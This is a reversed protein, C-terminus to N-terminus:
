SAVTELEAVATGGYLVDDTPEKRDKRCQRLREAENATLMLPDAGSAVLDVFARTPHREQGRERRPVREPYRYQLAKQDEYPDAKITPVIGRARLKQLVKFLAARQATIETIRSWADRQKAPARMAEEDNTIGEVLPALGAAEGILGTHEEGLHETILRDGLERLQLRAKTEVDRVAASLLFQARHPDRIAADIEMAAALTLEGAALRERVSKTAADKDETLARLQAGLDAQRELAAAVVPEVISADLGSETWATAIQKLDGMTIRETAM